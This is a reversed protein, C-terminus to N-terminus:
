DITPDIVQANHHPVVEDMIVSPAEESHPRISQREAQNMQFNGNAEKFNSSQLGNYYEFNSAQGPRSPMQAGKICNKIQSEPCSVMCKSFLRLDKNCTRARCQARCFVSDRAQRLLPRNKRLLYYQSYGQNVINKAFLGANNALKRLDAVKWRSNGQIQQLSFDIQQLNAQFEQVSKIAEPTRSQRKLKEIIVAAEQRLGMLVNLTDVVEQSSAFRETPTFRSAKNEIINRAGRYQNLLQEKKQTLMMNGQQNADSIGTIRPLTANCSTTDVIDSCQDFCFRRNPIDQCNACVYKCRELKQVMLGAVDSEPMAAFPSASQVGSPGPNAPSAPQMSANVSLVLMGLSVLLKFM